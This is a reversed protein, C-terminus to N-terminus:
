TESFLNILVVFLKCKIDRHVIGQSHLHEIGQLVQCTYSQITDLPLPGHANLQDKM